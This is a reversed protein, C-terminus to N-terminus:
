LVHNLWSKMQLRLPGLQLDSVKSVRQIMPLAREDIHDTVFPQIDDGHKRISIFPSLFM